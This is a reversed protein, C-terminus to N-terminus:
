PAARAALAKAASAADVAEFIEGSGLDKGHVHGDPDLTLAFRLGKKDAYKMQAAHKRPEPYTEVSFGLRRVAAALAFAGLADGQEPHTVLVTRREGGGHLKGKEDLAEILRSIGVSCGVGPLRQSTYLSALDDYRGGAGVSGFDPASALGVEFVVGTYYDLGRAITPDVRVRDGPVGAARLLDLVQRTGALGERAKANDGVLAELRGLTEADDAGASAPFALVRGAPEAPVGAALLETRVGEAGIKDWKDLARLVPVARDALGLSELFGNLTRRDNMRVVYDDVGLAAYVGAFMALIEADAAPGVSGVLDADCQYLERYRGKQPREGRWVPGIHYRRFPIPLENQHQAVFRALPVTLDFRLAVRRGGPDDFEFMQKDSEEGGKGKLVEAYELAPTDIPVYGFSEFVGEIVRFMRNRAAASAPMTDRFGKLTRPEIRGNM